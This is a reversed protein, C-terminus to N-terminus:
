EHDAHEQTHSHFAALAISALAITIAAALLKM